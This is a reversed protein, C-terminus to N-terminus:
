IFVQNFDVQFFLELENKIKKILSRLGRKICKWSKKKHLKFKKLTRRCSEYSEGKEKITRCANLFFYRNSIFIIILTPILYLIISFYLLIQLTFYFKYYLAHFDNKKWENFFIMFIRVIYNYQKWHNLRDINNNIKLRLLLFNTNRKVFIM